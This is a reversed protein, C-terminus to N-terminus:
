EGKKIVKIIHPSTYLNLIDNNHLRRWGGLVEERKLGFTGLVRNESVRVRHEERLTLSFTEHGYLVAPLIITKHIKIKL